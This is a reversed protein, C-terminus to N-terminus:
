PVKANAWKSIVRPNNLKCALVRSPSCGAHRFDACSFIFCVSHRWSFKLSSAINQGGLSPNELESYNLHESTVPLSLALFTVSTSRPPYTDVGWYCGGCFGMPCTDSGM